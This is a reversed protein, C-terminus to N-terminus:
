YSFYGLKNYKETRGSWVEVCVVSWVSACVCVCVRARVFMCLCVGACVRVCMRVRVFLDGVVRARGM